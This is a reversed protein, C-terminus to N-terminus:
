AYRCIYQIKKPSVVTSSVQKYYVNVMGNGLTLPQIPFYHAAYRRLARLYRM